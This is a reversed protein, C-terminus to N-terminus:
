PCEHRDTLGACTKAESGRRLVCCVLIAGALTAAMLTSPEPVASLAGHTLDGEHNNARVYYYTYVHAFGPPTLSQLPGGQYGVLDAPQVVLALLVSEDGPAQVMTFSYHGYPANSGQDDISQFTLEPSGPSDLQLNASMVEGALTDITVTGSLLTGDDFTGSANLIIDAYAGPVWGAQLCFIVIGLSFGKSIRGM